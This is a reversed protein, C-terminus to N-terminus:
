VYPGRDVKYGSYDRWKDPYGIKLKIASLKATAQERTAPSMWDLTSLDARLADILNHVM